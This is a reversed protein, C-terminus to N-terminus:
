ELRLVISTHSGSARDLGYRANTDEGDHDSGYLRYELNLHPGGPIFSFLGTETDAGVAPRASM